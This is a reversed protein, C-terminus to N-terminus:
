TQDIKLARLALEDAALRVLDSALHFNSFSNPNESIVKLHKIRLSQVVGVLNETTIAYRFQDSVGYAKRVCSRAECVSEHHRVRKLRKKDSKRM